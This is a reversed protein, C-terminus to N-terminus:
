SMTSMISSPAVPSSMLMVSSFFLMVMRTSQARNARVAETLAAGATASDQGAMHRSYMAPTADFTPLRARCIVACSGSSPLM